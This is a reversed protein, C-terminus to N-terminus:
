TQYKGPQKIEHNINVSHQPGVDLRTGKLKVDEFRAGDWPDPATYAQHIATEQRKLARLAAKEAAPGNARREPEPASRAAEQVGRLWKRGVEELDFGLANLCLCLSSLKPNPRRRWNEIAENSITVGSTRYVEAALWPVSRRRRNLEAFIITVLPHAGKPMALPRWSSATHAPISM